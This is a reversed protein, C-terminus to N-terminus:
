YLDKPSLMFLVDKVRQMFSRAPQRTLVRSGSVWLLDGDPDIEVRWSNDPSMGRETIGALKQALDPSEVVIGMESNIQYSRPDLNMSGIFIRKRDVVVAKTHLSMFESEVPPTDAISKRVAADPRIEHLEVGAEVLARRWPKYHSHVATVEQSALSNTLIRVKVGRKAAQHLEEVAKEGPIIYANTIMVEETASLLFERIAQPMHHSIAERDPSDTVVRSRGFSLSRQMRDCADRWDKPEVAIGALKKSAQLRQTVSEHIAKADGEPIPEILDRVSIVWESNWFRDFVESAQRAMPGIGLVDLDMFNFDSNFGMYEDAINRGGIIAARNDAIMQKNHMRRNLREMRGVLEAGRAILRRSKWANFLRIEINPHAVIAALYRDRIFPPAKSLAVKLDDLLIRVKVGRDAADVVRKMLLLGSDDAYWIYYQLDLTHRASDVLALRWQLGDENCDLPLFGSSDNGHNQRITEELGSFAGDPRAPRAYDPAPRLPAEPLSACGALLLFAM